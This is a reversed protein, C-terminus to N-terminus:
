LHKRTTVFINLIKHWIPWIFISSFLPLWYSWSHPSKGTVGLIWLNILLYVGLVVLIMFAQQWIVQPSIRESFRISFYLVLVFGLAHQGLITGYLTDILLGTFWAFLLPIRKPTVVAWHILTLLIWNPNWVALSSPLPFLTLLIAIILSVVIAGPFRLFVKNIM